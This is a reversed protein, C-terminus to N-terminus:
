YAAAPRRRTRRVLAVALMGLAIAIVILLLWITSPAPDAPPKAIPDVSLYVRVGVRNVVKVGSVQHGPLEAWVVAVHDGSPAKGPVHIKVTAFAERGGPITLASPSVRTWGTVENEAGPEGFAFEDGRLEAAGAYLRIRITEDTGNSVAIRRVITSGRAAVANIYAQKDDPSSANPVARIGVLRDDAASAPGGAMLGLVVLALLAALTKPRM